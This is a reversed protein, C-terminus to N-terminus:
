PSCRCARGSPRLDPEPVSRPTSGEFAGTGHLRSSGSQLSAKPPRGLRSRKQCFRARLGVWLHCHPSTVSAQGGPPIAHCLSGVSFLSSVLPGTGFLCKLTFLAGMVAWIALIVAHMLNKMANVADEECQATPRGQGVCPTRRVCTSLTNSDLTRADSLQPPHNLMLVIWTVLGRAHSRGGHSDPRVAWSNCVSGGAHEEFSCQSPDGQATPHQDDDGDERARCRPLCRGM